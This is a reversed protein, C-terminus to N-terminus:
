MSELESFFVDSNIGEMDLMRQLAQRTIYGLSFDLLVVREPYVRDIYSRLQEVEQVCEHGIRVLADHVRECSFDSDSM